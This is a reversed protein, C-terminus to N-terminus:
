IFKSLHMCVPAQTGVWVFVRVNSFTILRHAVSSWRDEAQIARM